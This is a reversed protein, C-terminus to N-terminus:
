NSKILDCTNEDAVCFMQYLISIINDQHKLTMSYRKGALEFLSLAVFKVDSSLKTNKKILTCTEDMKKKM